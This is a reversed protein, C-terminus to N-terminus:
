VGLIEFSTAQKDLGRFLMFAGSLQELAGHFLGARVTDTTDGTYV